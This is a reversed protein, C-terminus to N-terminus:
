LRCIPRFAQPFDGVAFDRLLAGGKIPLSFDTGNGPLIVAYGPIRTLRTKKREFVVRSGPIASTMGGARVMM